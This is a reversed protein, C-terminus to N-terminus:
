PKIYYMRHSTDRAPIGFYYAMMFRDNSLVDSPWLEGGHCQQRAGFPWFIASKALKRVSLGGESGNRPKSEAAAGVCKAGTPSLSYLM